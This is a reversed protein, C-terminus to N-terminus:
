LGRRAKMWAAVVWLLVRVGILMGLVWRMGWLANLMFEM